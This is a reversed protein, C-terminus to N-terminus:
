SQPKRPVITAFAPTNEGMWAGIVNFSFFEDAEEYTMGDREMLIKMCKEWDYLAVPEMGFRTVYGILAAEFGAAFLMEENVEALLDKYEEDTMGNEKKM